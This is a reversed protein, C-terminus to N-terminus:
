GADGIVNWPKALLLGASGLLVTPTNWKELPGIPSEYERSVRESQSWDLLVVDIGDLMESGFEDRKATRCSVFRESLFDTFSTTRSDDNQRCLYLVRLPLKEAGFSSPLPALVIVCALFLKAMFPKM